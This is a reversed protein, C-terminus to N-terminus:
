NSEDTEINAENECGSGKCLDTWHLGNDRCECTSKLDEWM